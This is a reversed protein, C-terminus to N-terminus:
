YITGDELFDLEMNKITDIITEDSTLYEYEKKLAEYIKCNMDIHSEKIREELAAAQDTYKDHQKSSLEHVDYPIVDVETSYEHVYRCRNRTIRAVIYDSYKFVLPYKTKCRHSTMWEQLDINATFSAGDGQSWFGSFSIEIDYYGQKKLTETFYDYVQDYWIHNEVHYHQMDEIAKSQAEKSLEDFTYLTKTETITKM